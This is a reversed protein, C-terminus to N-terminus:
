QARKSSILVYYVEQRSESVLKGKSYIPVGQLNPSQIVHLRERPRHLTRPSRITKYIATAFILSERVDERSLDDIELELQAKTTFRLDGRIACRKIRLLIDDM